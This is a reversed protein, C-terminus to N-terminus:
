KSRLRELNTRILTEDTNNSEVPNDWVQGEKNFTIGMITFPSNLTSCIDYYEEQSMATFSFQPYQEQWKKLQEKSGSEDYVGCFVISLESSEKYDRAINEMFFLRKAARGDLPFFAIYTHDTPKASCAGSLIKNQKLEAIDKWEQVPLQYSECAEKWMKQTEPYTFLSAYQEKLGTAQAKNLRLRDLSQALLAQGYLNVGSNNEAPCIEKVFDALDNFSVETGNAAEAKMRDILNSGAIHVDYLFMADSLLQENTFSFTSVAYRLLSVDPSDLLTAPGNNGVTNGSRSADCIMCYLQLENYLQVNRIKEQTSLGKTDICFANRVSDVFLKKESFTQGQQLARKQQILDQLERFNQLESVEEVGNRKLTCTPQEGETGINMEIKDNPNLYLPFYIRYKPISVHATFGEKRAISVRFSGRATIYAKKTKESQAESTHTSSYDPTLIFYIVNDEQTGEKPPYINGTIEIAAMARCALVLFLFVLIKKM